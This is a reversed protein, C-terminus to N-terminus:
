LKEFVAVLYKNAFGDKFLSGVRLMLKNPHDIYYRLVNRRLDKSRKEKRSLLPLPNFRQVQIISDVERFGAEAFLKKFSRITFDQLHYPNADM